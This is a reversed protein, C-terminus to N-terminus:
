KINEFFRILEKKLESYQATNKERLNNSESIDKELDYLELEADRLETVIQQWNGRTAEVQGVLKWNGKRV